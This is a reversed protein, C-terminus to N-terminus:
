YVSIEEKIKEFVDQPIIKEKILEEISQYPRNDIISSARKEGIGWLTDLEGLSATNINIKGESVSTKLINSDDSEFPIYLKTGDELKQALNLNKEVWERDADLALGGAKIFLDNLRSNSPLEYLGPKQVAGGLDIFITESEEEDIPIIEIESSSSQAILFLSMLILILGLVGIILQWKNKKLLSEIDNEAM